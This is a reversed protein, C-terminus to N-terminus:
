APRRHLISEAIQSALAPTTTINPPQYALNQFM